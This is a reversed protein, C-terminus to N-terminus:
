KMFCDTFLGHIRSLACGARGGPNPAGRAARQTCLPASPLLPGDGPSMM